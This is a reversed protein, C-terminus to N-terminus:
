RQTVALGLVDRYFAEARALDAVKPHVHGISMGSPAQYTSM